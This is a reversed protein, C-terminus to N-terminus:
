HAHRNLDPEPCWATWAVKVQSFSRIARYSETGERARRGCPAGAERRAYMASRLFAAQV